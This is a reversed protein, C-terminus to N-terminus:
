GYTRQITNLANITHPVTADAVHEWTVSDPGATEPFFTLMRRGGNSSLWQALNQFFQPRSGDNSANANCECVNIQPWKLGSRNRAMALFGDMYQSVLDYTALDSHGTNSGGEYYVDVGYWDLPYSPTPVWNRAPDTDSAMLSIEGYIISGYEVRPLGPNENAVQNCLDQMQVHMSRVVQPTLGYQSWKAATYLNGAEHWVTLQPTGAFFSTNAAKAAGDKILDKLAGLFATQAPDLLVRPDPKISAVAKTGQVGPFGNLGNVADATSLVDDRYSRCGPASPVESAWGPTPPPPNWPGASVGLVIGETAARASTRALLPTALGAASAIGVGKLFTRRSPSGSSTGEPPQGATSAASV